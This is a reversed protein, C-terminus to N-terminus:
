STGDPRPPASRAPRVMIASLTRRTGFGMREYVRIAGANDERVHLFPTEGAAQIRAGIEATLAAALGRGRFAPDTCVASIERYGPLHMRVGAMAVLRGDEHVGVYDGLERTRRAFPGPQTAQALALMEEDDERTLDRFALGSPHSLPQTAIMQRAGMLFRVSWPEPVDIPARLLLLPGDVDMLGTLTDWSAAPVEDPFAAIPDIDPRYRRAVDDGLGLSAQPGCLAYWAPNDLPNM